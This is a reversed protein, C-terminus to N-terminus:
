ATYATSSLARVNFLKEKLEQTILGHQEEGQLIDMDRCVKDLETVKRVRKGSDGDGAAEGYHRSPSLGSGYLGAGGSGFGRSNSADKNVKQIKQTLDVLRETTYARNTVLPSQSLTSVWYKNWLAELLKADLSSKFHTVQLPYYQSAHVGFDEIKGLPINRYEADSSDAPKYGEPYTRFAGIEVAGASITRNPDIVVALFPDQYKQNEMQTGVDIGSLWCGYGPHSHYWGVVNEPRSVQESSTGYQIMYEYAEAGANVRTETGEVPLAFADLIIIDGEATIKGQMLGMVEIAGGSRAHTVMKILAIASIRARRFFHPDRTWPADNRIAKQEAVDYEFIRDNNDLLQVNNELEFTQQPITM